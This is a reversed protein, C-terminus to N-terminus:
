GKDSHLYILKMDTQFLDEPKMLKQCVEDFIGPYCYNIIETCYFDESKCSDKIFNYSFGILQKSYRAANRAIKEDKIYRLISLNETTFLFINDEVIRNKTVHIISHNSSAIGFHIRGEEVCGTLLIDGPELLDLIDNVEQLKAKNLVVLGFTKIMWKILQCKIHLV